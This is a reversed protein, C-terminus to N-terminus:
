ETLRVGKWDNTGVATAFFVINTTEIKGIVMDGIRIATYSSAVTNTLASDAFVTPAISAWSNTGEASATWFATQGGTVGKLTDGAGTAYYSTTVTNTLATDVFGLLCKTATSNAEGQKVWFADGEKGGCTGANNDAWDAFAFNAVALLAILITLTRKM